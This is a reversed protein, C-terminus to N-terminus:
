FIMAKRKRAVEVPCVFPWRQSKDTHAWASWEADIWYDHEIAHRVRPDRASLFEFPKPYMRTQRFLFARLGATSEFRWVQTVGKIKRAVWIYRAEAKSWLRTRPYEWSKFAPMPQTPEPLSVM